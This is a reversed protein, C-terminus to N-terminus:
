WFIGSGSGLMVSNENKVSRNGLELKRPRINGFIGIRTYMGNGKGLVSLSFGSFRIAGRWVPGTVLVLFFSYIRRCKPM